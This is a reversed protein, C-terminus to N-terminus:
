NRRVALNQKGRWIIKWAEYKAMSCAPEPPTLKTDVSACLHSELTTTPPAAEMVLGNSECDHGSGIQQPFKSM